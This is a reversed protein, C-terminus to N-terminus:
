TSITMCVPSNDPVLSTDQQNALGNLNDFDGNYWLPGAVPSGTNSDSDSDPQPQPAAAAVVLAM